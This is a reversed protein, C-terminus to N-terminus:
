QTFSDNDTDKQKKEYNRELRQILLPTAFITYCTDHEGTGLRGHLYFLEKTEEWCYEFFKHWERGKKERWHMLERNCYAEANSFDYRTTSSKGTTYQQLLAYARAETERQNRDFEIRAEETDLKLQARCEEENACYISQLEGREKLIGKQAYVTHRCRTCLGATPNPRVTEKPKTPEMEDSIERTPASPKKAPHCRYHVYGNHEQSHMILYGVNIRRQCAPCESEKKSKFPATIPTKM